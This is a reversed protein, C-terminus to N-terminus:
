QETLSDLDATYNSYFDSNKVKLLNPVRSREREISGLLTELEQRLSESEQNFHKDLKEWLDEPLDSGCFACKDRKEQHHARGTR